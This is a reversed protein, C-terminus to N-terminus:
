LKTGNLRLKPQAQKTDSIYRLEIYIADELLGEGPTRM